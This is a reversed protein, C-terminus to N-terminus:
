SKSKDAPTWVPLGFLWLLFGAATPIHLANGSIQYWERAPVSASLVLDLMPNQFATQDALARYGPLGMCSLAEGPLLQRGAEISWVVSKTLLCMLKWKCGKAYEPTEKLDCIHYPLDAQKASAVQIFGKLHKLKSGPLARRPDASGELGKERLYAELDSVPASFYIAGTSVIKAALIDLPSRAPAVFLTTCSELAFAKSLLITFRRRRTMPYGASSPCAVWSWIWHTDQFYRGLLEESPHESVCEHLVWEEQLIQRTRAWCCFPVCHPGATRRRNGTSAFDICTTGAVHGRIATGTNKADYPCPQLCKYCTGATNMPKREPFHALAADLADLMNNGVGAPGVADMRSMGSKILADVEGSFAEQIKRLQDLAEGGFRLCIDGFIHQPAMAGKHSALVKRCWPNIDAAAHCSSRSLDIDPWRECCQEALYGLLSEAFGAGSYATTLNVGRRFVAALQRQQFGDLQSLEREFFDIAEPLNSPGRVEDPATDPQPGRPRKGM